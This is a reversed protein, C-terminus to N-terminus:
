GDIRVTLYVPNHDSYEFGHDITVANAETESFSPVIRLNDSVIFGDILYYQNDDAHEDYPRNLLRCTPKSLDHAFRYGEPLYDDEIPYAVFIDTVTEFLDKAEPFTQNFDGGVVVYNGLENQEILFDKLASMEQERMSGDGDYASMHLNVVVLSEEKGAIPIESVVMARKLNAVRLPWSFSGPFQRRTAREVRYTSHTQLGSEVFGIYDTLSVPFPVFLAKFNYAYSYGHTDALTEHIGEVQDVFYSRRSNQDVEQLLYFDAPHEEILSRIGEFYSLVDDESDPRGKTGGDMVFDENKGLGAYGINFTMFSLDTDVAVENQQPNNIELAVEDDPRYEFITLGVVFLVAAFLLSLVIMIVIKFPKM